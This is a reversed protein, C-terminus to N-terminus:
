RNASGCARSPFPPGLLLLQGVHIVNVNEINNWGALERYDLGHDLAIQYLTDGRKVTYTAPAPAPEPERGPLPAPSAPVQSASPPPAREIVAPPPRPTACGGLLAAVALAVSFAIRYSRTNDIM